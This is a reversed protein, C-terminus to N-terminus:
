ISDETVMLIIVYIYQYHFSNVRKGENFDSMLVNARIFDLTKGVRFGSFLQSFFVVRYSTENYSGEVSKLRERVTEQRDKSM